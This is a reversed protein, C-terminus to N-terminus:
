LLGSEYEEYEECSDCLRDENFNYIACTEEHTLVPDTCDKYFNGTDYGRGCCICLDEGTYESPDLLTVKTM